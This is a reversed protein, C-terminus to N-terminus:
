KIAVNHEGLLKKLESIAASDPNIWHEKALQVTQHNKEYYLIIPVSGKYKKIMNKLEGLLENTQHNADIKIYVKRSEPEKRLKEVSQIFNVIFQKQGHRFDLTGTMFVIEGKKVLASSTRYVNPFVVASMDQSEDSIQLFAMAEGNKTRTKRVEQIYAGVHYKSGAIKLEDLLLAGQSQLLKRYMSVPHRSIFLGLVQKEFQLKKDIPIPEVEVYKPKIDLEESFLSDIQHDDPKMLQAHEIAVDLTALLVARDHGFEDFSGAHILNELVKRNVVKLSVRLCFNFLDTFPREGRAQIIEKLAQFGVGKIAALSFRVGDREVQFQYYSHNISPPYITFGLHKLEKIYEATKNENGVVSTLLSAMFYLPYHAKLYALQYSIMSYAVAHSRNFGYDAFRVILDYIENATTESYGNNKAGAVFHQRQQDLVERKKKSVARRLLDAEGLTFGAMKSAIQMIQEQYVIVGYTKKLINELDPHPYRVPEKGHKRNIYVPINTMPGPRYLANVAVIDEFETPKLRILVDRMGESELQFIGTTQGKQLLKFTKEDDFPIHKLDIKKQQKKHISRIISEILSLNRLGLFDMKLLGIEELTGMPYQTLLVDNSGTQLPIWEVLPRDGIVVGAAHTSTHRPLGEIKAAIQFIQQFNENKMLDQLAQSEKTAEKLTIGLKNPISKSLQDLEKNTRGFVRAVDRVAAKAAFTGFTIIQAVHTSGYKKAVYQIVEDRRHDPFDIDIDPMSVREPNLFREFLLDFKIPDVDTIELVYAVLSGAASGRGPGVIIGNKRAFQVYDWVILFYDSFKMKKIIDLEYKLREKYIPTPSDIRISLNKECLESLFVDSTKEDLPYKPLLQQHFPIEVQCQEAIKLTNEIAEPYQQFLSNLEENTRLYGEKDLADETLESININEKIAQLCKWSFYDEKDLFCVKDVAAVPINMEESMSYIAKRLTEHDRSPLSQISLYFSEKEFLQQYFSVKEKARGEQGQLIYTEIEGEIGPSIAILGSCYHKLWKIPIGKPSKTQIASSIKMINQYGQLNKAYFLLPYATTEYEEEILIDAELGIIPQIGYTRCAKYFPIVGYLVNQDTIALAHFGRQKAAKVMKEPQITSSLLSYASYMHLPVM